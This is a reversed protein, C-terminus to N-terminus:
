EVAAFNGFDYVLPKFIDIIRIASVIILLIM